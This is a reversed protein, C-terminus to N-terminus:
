AGRPRARPRKTRAPPVPQEKPCDCARMLAGCICDAPAPSPQSLLAHYRAELDDHRGQLVAIQLAHDNIAQDLVGLLKQRLIRGDPKLLGRVTDTSLGLSRLGVVLRARRIAEPSYTRYGNYARGAPPVLGITEYHRLTKPTVGLFGALEGILM